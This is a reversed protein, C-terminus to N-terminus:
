AMGEVPKGVLIVTASQVYFPVIAPFAKPATASGGAHKFNTGWGAPAATLRILGTSNVKPNTPNPITIAGCTWYPGLAMDFAGATITQETYSASAKKDLEVKLGAPTVARNNDTGTTVEAATALEVLGKVTDSASPTAATVFETTALQTTNTGAAATPATPVGTFAPAALPAKKDLEVKVGAPTVARVTDTGATVEAATALEVIGKVTDSADPITSAYSSLQWNTGDYIIQSGAVTPNPLGTYGANPAGGTTVSYVWGSKVGTPPAATINVGGKYILGGTKSLGLSTWFNGTLTYQWQEGTSTDTFIQGDTPSDPFNLAM